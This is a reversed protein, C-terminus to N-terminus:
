CVSGPKRGLQSEEVDYSINCASISLITLQTYMYGRSMFLKNKKLLAWMHSMSILNTKPYCWWWSPLFCLLFHRKNGPNGSRQSQQRKVATLNLSIGMICMEPAICRACPPPREEGGTSRYSGNTNILTEGFADLPLFVGFHDPNHTLFWWISKKEGGGWWGVKQFDGSHFVTRLSDSFPFSCAAPQVASSGM